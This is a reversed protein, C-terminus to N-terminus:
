CLSVFILKTIEGNAAREIAKVKVYQQFGFKVGRPLEMVAYSSKGKILPLLTAFKGKMSLYQAFFETENDKIDEMAIPKIGKPYSFNQPKETENAAFVKIKENKNQSNEAAIKNKLEESVPEFVIPAANEPLILEVFGLPLGDHTIRRSKYRAPEKQRSSQSYVQNKEDPKDITGLHDPLRWDGTIGHFGSGFSLRLICSRSNNFTMSRLEHLKELVDAAIDAQDYKKFFEIEKELYLRTYLNIRNFLFQLPNEKFIDAHHKPLFADLNKNKLINLFGDAISIRFKAQADPAFTEAFIQFGNKIKSQWMGEYYLNFLNIESVETKDLFVDFPRIYRMLSTKFSGMVDEYTNKEAVSFGKGKYLYHFLVNAIAGKISSGPIYTGNIGDSILSKIETLRAGESINKSLIKESFRDTSFRKVELVQKRFDQSNGAVLMSALGDISQGSEIFLTFLKDHDIVVIRGRDDFYDLNKLWNKEGGAGVHVPTLIRLGVEINTNLKEAIKKM